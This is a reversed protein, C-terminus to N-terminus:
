YCLIEPYSPVMVDYEGRKKHDYKFTEKGVDTQRDRADASDSDCYDVTMNVAAAIKMSLGRDSWISVHVCVCLCDTLTTM